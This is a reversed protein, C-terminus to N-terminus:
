LLQIKLTYQFPTYGTLCVSPGPLKSQAGRVHTYTHECQGLGFRIVDAGMRYEAFGDKMLFTDDAQLSPVVGTIEGGERLNIEVALPVNDTGHANISIDFGQESEQIHAEYIMRCIETQQRQRSLLAWTERSVPLLDPDAIPQYYRGEIEQRFYFGDKQREYIEPILQGKGFFASAFRVANIVAQGHHISLWRSNGKNMITVSTKGRRIRTINSLPYHKEFNDPLSVPAPLDAKLEPYEMLAALKAHQPELADLMSAYIGGQDKIAMYRLAFWYSAMTGRTNLDQRRSIETVVEGNPHLLYSMADLNKRVPDLLEPRNLKHAMTVFANDSIANYVTSSREIFQGEEDIDIGEALWQDIRKVYKEDPFLDNIQALAACVVWRHNPTHIGGVTMGQGACRLFDEILPLIDDDNNMQAIKAASAVRHVIFGTDPPSNFNTTILDINGESNQFRILFGIALKMREYVDKNRHFKSNPNFFAVTANQLIAAASSCHYLGFNDAIGGCWRSQSDTIQVNLSQELREDHTRVVTLIM